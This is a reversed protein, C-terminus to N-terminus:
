LIFLNFNMLKYLLLYYEYNIIFYLYFINLFIRKSTSFSPFWQFLREEKKKKLKSSVKIKFFYKFIVM